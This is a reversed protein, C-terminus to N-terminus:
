EYYLAVGLVRMDADVEVDASCAGWFDGLDNINLRQFELIRIRTAEYDYYTKPAIFRLRM